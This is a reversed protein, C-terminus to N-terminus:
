TNLAKLKADIVNVLNMLHRPQPNDPMADVWEKKEEDTLGVWDRALYVPVLEVDQPPEFKDTGYIFIGSGDARVYGYPKM